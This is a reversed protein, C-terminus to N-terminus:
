ITESEWEVPKFITEGLKEEKVYVYVGKGLDGFLGGVKWDCIKSKSMEEGSDCVYPSRSVGKCMPCRFGKSGVSKRLEDSTEFVRSKENDLLPQHRDQYYNMWSYNRDKEWGDIVEKWVVGTYKEYLKAREIIWKLKNCYAHFCKNDFCGHESFCDRNDAEKKALEILKEYGDM